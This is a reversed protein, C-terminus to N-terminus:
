YEYPPVIPKLMINEGEWRALKPYIRIPIPNLPRPLDTWDTCVYELWNITFVYWPYCGILNRAHKGKRIRKKKETREIKKTIPNYLYKPPKPLIPKPM